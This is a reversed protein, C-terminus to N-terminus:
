FIPKHRSSPSASRQSGRPFLDPSQMRGHDTGVVQAQSRSSDVLHRVCRWREALAAAGYIWGITLGAFKTIAASRGISALRADGNRVVVGLLAANEVADCIGAAIQIAAVARSASALRDSHTSLVTGAENTLRVGLTTYAVLFPFDLLLSARAARRGDAGWKRLIDVSRDPGALEFRIIGTGGSAQLRRDLETLPVLLGVTAAVPGALSRLSVVSVNGHCGFTACSEHATSGAGNALAVLGIDGFPDNARPGDPRDSKLFAITAGGTQDRPVAGSIKPPLQRAL